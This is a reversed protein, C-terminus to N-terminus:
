GWCPHSKVLYGAREPSRRAPRVLTARTRGLVDLPMVSRNNGVVEVCQLVHLGELLSTEIKQFHGVWLSADIENTIPILWVFREM